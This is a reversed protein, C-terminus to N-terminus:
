AAAGTRRGAPQWLMRAADVAQRLGRPDAGGLADSPPFLRALRARVAPPGDLDRVLAEGGLATLEAVPDGGWDRMAPLGSSVRLATVASLRASGLAQGLPGLVRGDITRRLATACLVAGCLLALEDRAQPDAAVWDPLRGLAVTDASRLAPTHPGSLTALTRAERCWRRRSEAAGAFGEVPLASM